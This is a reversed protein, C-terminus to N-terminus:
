VSLTLEAKKYIIVKEYSTAEYFAGTSLEICFNKMDISSSENCEECEFDISYNKDTKVYVVGPATVFSFVDGAKLENFLTTCEEVKITMM